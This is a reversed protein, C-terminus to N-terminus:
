LAAIAPADPQDARHAFVRAFDEGRAGLFEGGSHPAWVAVQRLQLHRGSRTTKPLLTAHPTFVVLVRGGARAGRPQGGCLHRGRGPAPGWTGAAIPAGRYIAWLLTMTAFVASFTGHIAGAFLVVVAREAADPTSRRHERERRRDARKHQRSPMVPRYLTAGPGADPEGCHLELPPLLSFRLEIVACGPRAPRNRSVSDLKSASASQSPNM